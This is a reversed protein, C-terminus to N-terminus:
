SITKYSNIKSNLLSAFNSSSYSGVSSKNISSQPSSASVSSKTISSPSYSSIRSKIASLLPSYASVPTETISSTPYYSSVPTETISSAPNKISEESIIKSSLFLNKNYEEDTINNDAGLWCQTCYNELPNIPPRNGNCGFLQECTYTNECPVCIGKYQDYCKGHKNCEKCLDYKIHQIQYENCFEQKCTENCKDIKYKNKLEDFNSIGEKNLSEYDKIVRFGILKNSVTMM